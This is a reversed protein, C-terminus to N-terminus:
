ELFLRGTQNQAVCWDYVDRRMIADDFPSESLLMKRMKTGSIAESHHDRYPENKTHDTEVVTKCDKCYQLEPSPMMEIGLNTYKSFEAQAEYPGYYNGVGAHDRGVIFHTCGFNRRILAHFVAEKPGAYRMETTLVGFHIRDKPLHKEILIRYAGIVAEPTFDGAKKPGVLPQIFLADFRELAKRLLAEHGLHPVNRTQFGCLTRWGRERKLRMLDYPLTHLPDRDTHQTSTAQVRGGIFVSNRDLWRRAGPHERSDTRFLLRASEPLNPRYLSEIKLRALNQGNFDLSVEQGLQMQTADAESVDLVIPISFASGDSLAGTKVISNFDTETVFGTLPAFLGDLLNQLEVSQQPTLNLPKALM